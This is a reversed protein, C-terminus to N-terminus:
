KLVRVVNDIDIKYPVTNKTIDAVGWFLDEEIHTVNIISGNKIVFDQLDIDDIFDIEVKDGVKIEM